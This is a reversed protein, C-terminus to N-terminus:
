CEIMTFPGGKELARKYASREHITKVYSRIEESIAEQPARAVFAEVTYSMMFDAATPSSRGALFKEPGVTLLRNTILKGLKFLNPNIYKERISKMDQGDAGFKYVETFLPMMLLPQLSGEALHTYFLDESWGDSGPEIYMETDKGYITILYQVIAGSEGLVVKKSGDEGSDEISPSKGLPGASALEPPARRFTTDRQYAKLVYPICLEECLWLIRQARSDNLYHLTLM